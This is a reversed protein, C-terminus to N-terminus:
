LWLSISRLFACFELVVWSRSSSLSVRGRCRPLPACTRRQKQQCSVATEENGNPGNRNMFSSVGDAFANSVSVQRKESSHQADRDTARADSCHPCGWCVAVAMGMSGLLGCEQHTQPPPMSARCREIEALEMFRFCGFGHAALGCWVVANSDLM